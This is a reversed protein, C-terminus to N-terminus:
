PVYKDKRKDTLVRIERAVAESTTSSDLEVLVMTGPLLSSYFVEKKGAVIKTEPTILFTKTNGRPDRTTLSTESASVIKGPVVDENWQKPGAPLVYWIVMFLNILVLIGGVVIVAAYKKFFETAM